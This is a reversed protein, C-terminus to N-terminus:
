RWENVDFFSPSILVKEKHCSSSNCEDFKVHKWLENRIPFSGPHNMDTLFILEDNDKQRKVDDGDSLLNYYKLYEIPCKGPDSVMMPDWWMLCDITLDQADGRAKIKWNAAVRSILSKDDGNEHAAQCAYAVFVATDNFISSQVGLIPDGKLFSIQVNYDNNNWCKSNAKCKDWTTYASNRMYAEGVQLVNGGLMGHGFYAVKNVVKEMEMRVPTGCEASYKDAYASYPSGDLCKSIEGSSLGWYDVVMTKGDSSNLITSSRHPYSFIAPIKLDYDYSLASIIHPEIGISLCYKAYYKAATLSLRLPRDSNDRRYGTIVYDIGNLIRFDLPFVIGDQSENAPVSVFESFRTGRSIDQDASLSIKGDIMPQVTVAVTSPSIVSISSADKVLRGDFSMSKKTGSHINITDGANEKLLVDHITGVSSNYSNKRYDSEEHVLEGLEDLRVSAVIANSVKLQGADQSAYPFSCWLGNKLLKSFDDSGETVVNNAADAGFSYNSVDVFENDQNKLYAHIGNKATIQISASGRDIVNQPVAEVPMGAYYFNIPIKKWMKLFSFDTKQPAHKVIIQPFLWGTDRSCAIMDIGNENLNDGKLNVYSFVDGLNDVSASGEILSAFGGYVGEGLLSSLYTWIKRGYIGEVTDIVSQASVNPSVKHSVSLPGKSYGYIISVGNRKHCEYTGVGISSFKGFNNCAISNMLVDGDAGSISYVSALQPSLSFYNFWLGDSVKISIPQVKCDSEACMQIPGKKDGYVKWPTSQKVSNTLRYFLYYPAGGKADWSMNAYGSNSIINATQYVLADGTSAKGVVASNDIIKTSAIFAEFKCGAVGSGDSNIASVVASSISFQASIKQNEAVVSSVNIADSSCLGSFSGTFECYTSSTADQAHLISGGLLLVGAVLNHITSM